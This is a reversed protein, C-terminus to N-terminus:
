LQGLVAFAEAEDAASKSAEVRVDRYGAARVIEVIDTPAYWTTRVTEYEEALRVAGRRHAYRNHARALRAEPTWTSESRLAIQSGDELKVTRVEVLPAALRQSATPPVRCDLALVGPAVLHARIRELAQGVEAPDTIAQLAGGAVFAGGYRFPLNMQVIDQRFTPAALNAAALKANCRDLMAASPDVGHVNRGAAVLPVLVRGVGCLVDLVPGSGTPLRAACWAVEADPARPHAADTFLACLPGAAPM